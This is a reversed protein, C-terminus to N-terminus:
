FFIKFLIEVVFYGNINLGCTESSPDSGAAHDNWSVSIYQLSTTVLSSNEGLVPIIFNIKLFLSKM